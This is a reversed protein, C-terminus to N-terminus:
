VIDSTKEHVNLHILKLSKKKDNHEGCILATWLM